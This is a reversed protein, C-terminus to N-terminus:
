PLDSILYCNAIFFIYTFHLLNSISWLPVFFNLWEGNRVFKCNCFAVPPPMLLFFFVALPRWCTYSPSPHCFDSLLTRQKFPLFILSPSLSLFRFFMMCVSPFMILHVLSDDTTSFNPTTLLLIFVPLILFVTPPSLIHNLSVSNINMKWVWRETKKM